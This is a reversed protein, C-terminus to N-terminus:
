RRVEMAVASESRSFASIDQECRRLLATWEEDVQRQIERVTARAEPRLLHAFRAQPGLWDEIPRIREPEYTLRYRGEVVEYLPWFCTDVAANLIELSLRPEHGWGVPCDTLVNLFSPGDAAAAREVKRSLDHWHSSAGQAVYPVHHAVAIATM